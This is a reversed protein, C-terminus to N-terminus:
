DQWYTNFVTGGSLGVCDYVVRAITQDHQYSFNYGGARLEARDPYYQIMFLLGAGDGHAMAEANNINTRHFTHVMPNSGRKFVTYRSRSWWGRESNLQEYRTLTCQSVAQPTTGQWYVVAYPERREVKAQNVCGAAILSTALVLGVKSLSIM